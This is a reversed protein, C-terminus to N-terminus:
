SKAERLMFPSVWPGLVDIFYKFLVRCQQTTYQNPWRFHKKWSAVSLFPEDPIQGSQDDAIRAYEQEIRRTENLETPSGYSNPNPAYSHLIVPDRVTNFDTFGQSVSQPRPQVNHYDSPTSSDNTRRRKSASYSLLNDLSVPSPESPSRLSSDSRITSQQVPSLSFAERRKPVSASVPAEKSDSPRTGSTPRELTLETDDTSYFNELEATQDVIQFNASIHINTYRGSFSLAEALDIAGTHHNRQM